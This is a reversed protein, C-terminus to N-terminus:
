GGYSIILTINHVKIKAIIIITYATPPQNFYKKWPSSIGNRQLTAYLKGGAEDDGRVLPLSNPPSIIHMKMFFQYLM